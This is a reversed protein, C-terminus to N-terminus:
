EPMYGIGSYKGLLANVFMDFEKDTVKSEQNPFEIVNSKPMCAMCACNVEHHYNSNCKCDIPHKDM